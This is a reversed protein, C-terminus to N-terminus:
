FQGHWEVVDDNPLSFSFEFEGRINAVDNRVAPVQTVALEGTAHCNPQAVTEADSTYILCARARPGSEGFFDAEILLNWGATNSESWPRSMWWSVLSPLGWDDTGTPHAMVEWDESAGCDLYGRCDGRRCSCTASVSQVPNDAEEIVVELGMFPDRAWPANGFGIFSSLCQAESACKGLHDFGAAACGGVFWLCKSGDVQSGDCFVTPGKDGGCDAFALGRFCSSLPPPPLECTAATADKPAGNDPGLFMEIGSDRPVLDTSQDGLQTDGLSPAADTDSVDARSCASALGCIAIFAFRRM